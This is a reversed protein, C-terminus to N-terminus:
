LDNMKKQVDQFYLKYIFLISDQIKKLLQAKIKIDRSKINYKYPIYATFKYYSITYIIWFTYPLRIYLWNLTKGM